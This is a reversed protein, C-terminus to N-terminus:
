SLSVNPTIRAWVSILPLEEMSETPSFKVWPTPCFPFIQVAGAQIQKRSLSVEM